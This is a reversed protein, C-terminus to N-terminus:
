CIRPRSDENVCPLHNFEILVNYLETRKTAAPWFNSLCSTGIAVVGMPWEEVRCIFYRSEYVFNNVGSGTSFVETM